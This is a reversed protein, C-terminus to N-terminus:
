RGTEAGRRERVRAGSREHNMVDEASVPGVDEVSFVDGERTIKRGAWSGSPEITAIVM